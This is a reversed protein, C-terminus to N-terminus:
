KEELSAEAHKKFIDWTKPKAGWNQIMFVAYHGKGCDVWFRTGAAGGWEYRGQENVRGGLGYSKGIDKLHNKFILDVTGEELIRQGNLEGKRLLMECFKAYDGATSMLGQGGMMRAPRRMVEDRGMVKRLGGANKRSYVLAVRSRDEPHKVWFETDSMQLKDFVRERMILDLTKGEIAELYRGLIDISYGYAYREGPHFVLPRKAMSKSFDELSAGPGMALESRDYTLGASHTMLHRPTVPRKAAVQKQGERVRVTKWEPLYKHIPDDLKFKGEEWLAMATVAVIPKTMSYIRLLSDKSMPEEKDLDRQGHSEFYGIKGKWGILGILGSVQEERVEKEMALNLEKLAKLGLGAEQVERSPVRPEAGPSMVSFYGSLLSLLLMSSRKM